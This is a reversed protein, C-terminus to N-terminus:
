MELSKMYDHFDRARGIMSEKTKAIYVNNVYHEMDNFQKLSLNGRYALEVLKITDLLSIGYNIFQTSTSARDVKGIYEVLESLVDEM